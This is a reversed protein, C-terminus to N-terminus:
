IIRLVDRYAIYISLVILIIFGYAQIKLELERKIPKRRIAEILLILIKSGDLPPIPLLNTVGLSLSVVALLYAFQAFGKTQAVLESIGIPGMFQDMGIQGTFLMRLSDFLTFLFEGSASIATQFNNIIMILVFYVVLGFLINLLGGALLIVIRKWISARTYSDVDDNPEDAGKLSVFGGLPIIRLTYKTGNKEKSYIKKGFGIAFELVHVKCLRAALYHAFEHIIILVGLLFAIKIITIIM